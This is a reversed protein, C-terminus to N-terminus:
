TEISTKLERFQKQRRQIRQARLFRRCAVLRGFARRAWPIQQHLHIVASLAFYRSWAGFRERFLGAM